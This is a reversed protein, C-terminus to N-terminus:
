RSRLMEVWRGHSGGASAIASYGYAGEHHPVSVDDSGDSRTLRVGAESCILQVAALDWWELLPDFMADARGTVVLAYGYADGWTRISVGAGLARDFMDVNWCHFGSVCLVRGDLDDVGRQPSDVPQDGFFAGHGRAAWVCEGLAPLNIIGIAPGHEDSFQVLNSYTGVGHSFASTGDIPDLTWSCGSTGQHDEHEEGRITDDPREASIRRRLLLEAERDAFTVPTGDAKTDVELDARRFLGLTLEGAERAWQVASHALELDADPAGGTHQDSM